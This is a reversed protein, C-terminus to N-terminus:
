RYIAQTQNKNQTIYSFTRYEPFVSIYISFYKPYTVGHKWSIRLHNIFQTYVCVYTVYIIHLIYIYIM